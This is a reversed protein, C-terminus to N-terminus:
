ASRNLLRTLGAVVATTLGWGLLTLTWALWQGAGAARWANKQGLDVIPLLLNLTYVFPQFPPGKGPEVAQAPWITYVTTGTTLFLLLWLGALWTRYGYGVTADLFYGAIRGPWALAARRRRENELAIRKAHQEEGATRYAAILQQYPGPRYGGRDRALWDIRQRATIEVPSYIEKYSFGDLRLEHPWTTPDDEVIEIRAQNLAMTGPPTAFWLRARNATLHDLELRAESDFRTETLHLVGSLVAGDATVDGHFQAKTFAANRGVRVRMINLCTEGQAATFTAGEGDIAGAVSSNQLVVRGDSRFGRLFYLSEGVKIRQAQLTVTGPNYLHATSLSFLGDVRASVMRVQGIAVLGMALLAGEVVIRSANVANGDPQHLLADTLRLVRSIRAEKLDLEGVCVFGENLELDGRAHLGSARLGPTQCGPLRLSSVEADSFNPTEEFLSHELRIPATIRAGELDLVGTIRAGIVKLAPRAGAPLDFAGTLLRALLDARVTRGKEDLPLDVTKGHPFAAVILREAPTLKEAAM